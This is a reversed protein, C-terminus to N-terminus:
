QVNTARWNVPYLMRDSKRGYIVTERAFAEKDGKYDKWSDITMVQPRMILHCPSDSFYREFFEPINHEFRYEQRPPRLYHPVRAEQYRIVEHLQLDYGGSLEQCLRLLEKYFAEKRDLIRLYAAEEPAWYVSGCDPITVGQGSGEVIADAHHYLLAVQTGLIEARDRTLNAVYELFRTYKIGHKEFLYLMLYFGLKLGHFLQMIWSIVLARKWDEVSMTATSVVIEEYETPIDEPRVSGHIENLPIRATEIKFKEQYGPDALETNPYVQCLYVMLQNKIGSELIDEIGQVFSQYTEGPLGLILETYTPINERNYRKQLNNYVSERINRRRVNALAEPSNSQRSLTIGKEMDHQHLLKGIQFINEEANKGYCARLKEPYGYKEKAQVFYKAIELDRKLMGFNSDACFTYRIKHAGCWDVVERVRQLSFFRYRKGVGWFCFACRFPCGRNTEVIAQLNLKQSLDYLGTLYPSPFRDLNEELPRDVGQYIGGSFRCSLGPLLALGRPTKLLTLLLEAFTVEGEGRATVDIFPYRSLFEVVNLPVQPGGFVIVCDPFKEKVRRAVALSLNINWMSCSFAAVSPNNYQSVIKEPDDRIFIFPMFEYNERITPITEAYARLQGSALPLYTTNDMLVNYENFYIEKKM